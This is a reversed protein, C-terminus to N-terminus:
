VHPPSTEKVYNVTVSVIRLTKAPGGDAAIRCVSALKSCFNLGIERHSGTFITFFPNTITM